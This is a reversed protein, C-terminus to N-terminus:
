FSLNKGSTKTEALEKVEKALGDVQGETNASGDLGGYVVGLGLCTM